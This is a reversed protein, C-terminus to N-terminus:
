ADQLQKLWNYGNNQRLSQVLAFYHRLALSKSDIASIADLFFLLLFDFLLLGFVGPEKPAHNVARLAAARAHTSPCRQCEITM